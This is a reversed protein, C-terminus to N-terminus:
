RVNWVGTGTCGDPSPEVVSFTGAGRLPKGRRPSELKGKWTVKGGGGEATGQVSGTADMRGALKMAGFWGTLTDDSQRILQLHGSHTMPEFMHPPANQCYMQWLGLLRDPPARLEVEHSVTRNSLKVEAVVIRGADFQGIDHAYLHFGVEGERGSASEVFLPEVNAGSNSWRLGGASPQILCIRLVEGPSAARVRLLFSHDPAGDPKAPVSKGIKDAEWGLWQLQLSPVAAIKPKGGKV